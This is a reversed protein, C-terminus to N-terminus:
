YILISCFCMIILYRTQEHMGKCIDIQQREITWLIYHVSRAVQGIVFVNAKRYDVWSQVRNEYEKAQALASSM